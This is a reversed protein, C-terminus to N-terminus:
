RIDINKNSLRLGGEGLEIESGEEILRKVGLSMKFASPIDLLDKKFIKVLKGAMKKHILNLEINKIWGTKYFLRGPSILGNSFKCNDLEIIPDYYYDFLFYDSYKGQ